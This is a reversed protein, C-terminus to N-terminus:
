KEVRGDSWSRFRLNRVRCFINRFKAAETSQLQQSLSLSLSLHFSLSFGSAISMKMNVYSLAPRDTLSHPSPM